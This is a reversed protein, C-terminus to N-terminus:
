PTVDVGVAIPESGPGGFIGEEMRYQILTVVLVAPGIEGPAVVRLDKSLSQGPQLRWTLWADSVALGPDQLRDAAYWSLRLRVAGRAMMGGLSSWAATGRNEVRLKLVRSTGRPWSPPPLVEWDYRVRTEDPALKHTMAIGPLLLGLFDPTAPGGQLALVPSSREITWFGHDENGSDNQPYFFVGVVQLFVSFAVTFALLIRGPVSKWAREFAPAIAVVLIPLGDLVYRPGYCYGAAWDFFHGHLYLCVAYSALLVKIGPFRCAGAWPIALALLLFPSFIFLGRNSFLLGLLGLFGWANHGFFAPHSADLTGYGGSLRAFHHLNYAVLLAGAVASTAFFPWARRRLRVLVFVAIAAHFVLNTPRNATLLGALVGLLALRAPTEFGRVFVLLIAGLLFQSPGQQWLAQSSTAWSTTGFAYAATLLLATPGAVLTELVLFMLGAAAAMIVSASVKEMVMRLDDRNTGPRLVVLAVAPVYLPTVLISGVVPYLSVFSGDRSTVISYRVYPPLGRPDELTLGHGTLLRFPLQGAAYSDYSAIHRLNANYVLFAALLVLGFRRLSSSSRAPTM